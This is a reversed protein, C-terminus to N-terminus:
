GKLTEAELKGRKRVRFQPVKGHGHCVVLCIVVRQRWIRDHDHLFDALGGAIKQRFDPAYKPKDNLSELFHKVTEALSANRETGATEKAV